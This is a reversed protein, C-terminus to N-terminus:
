PSRGDDPSRPGGFVDRIAELYAMGNATDPELYSGETWENWANITLVRPAPRDALFRRARELARRFEAPTNGSLMPTFPYGLNAYVDSQVTRPSPDWGMTVNPYYPPSFETCARQWHEAAAEAAQRYDTAPFDPLAVHHVWVYSTVSAFGLEGLLENPSDVVEEGPLITRGWVVANLHLDPFGAAKTKARFGDLATRTERVSGFGRVLASLDYISFYPCGDVRWYSPHRFYRGVVYDAIGAMTARSVAGPYLLRPPGAAKAPHIDMWDHNAWMLAFKLRDQSPARCYGDELCRSLFPGDDYWYWDFIFHTIGHDAAAEIKRAFVEPDSEDEYGWAPAKPQRHGAYRPEGRKVLEWETWGRGHAAENRPDVHYNPFYYVGVEYDGAM